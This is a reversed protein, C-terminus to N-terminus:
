GVIVYRARFCRRCRNSQHLIESVSEAFKGFRSKSTTPLSKPVIRDEFITIGLLRVLDSWKVVTVSTDRATKTNILDWPALEFLLSASLM